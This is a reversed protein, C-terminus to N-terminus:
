RVRVQALRLLDGISGVGILRDRLRVAEDRDVEGGHAAPNRRAALDELIPPLSEVFWAGPDLRARLHDLRPKESAIIRALQGLTFPGDRSLDMSRGEVNVLRIASPAGRMAAHLIANAQVEVANALAVIIPGMDFAPDGRHRRFSAEASAIFSRAAPDLAAWAMAGFRNERLERQLEGVGALEADHEAWFRGGTYRARTAPDFWRTDDARTVILPLDVMGGYLSVPRDHYRTNRLQALEHSVATTDDWVLRRVDWLQFWCDCVLDNRRYYAPAAPDHSRDEATVEGLHAVYLSRYDTLYLHVEPAGPGDGIAADAKLVEALHPLPAQRNASRVKGWWVYVEDAGCEGARHERMTSLLVQLHQQMADAEYTPNWVALLHHPM